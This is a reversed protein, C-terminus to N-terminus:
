AQKLVRALDARGFYARYAATEALLARLDAELQQHNIASPQHSIAPPQHSTASSAISATIRLDDGEWAEIAIQGRAALWEIGKRVTALRQGTAAALAPLYVRGERQKLDYKLLGALRRLFLELRDEQDQAACVIVRRPAVRALAAALERPGPPASWIVLTAAKDLEHRRRLGGGLQDALKSAAAGEAWVQADGEAQLAAV